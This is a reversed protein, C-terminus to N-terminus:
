RRQGERFKKRIRIAESKRYAAQKEETDRRSAVPSLADSENLGLAKLREILARELEEDTLAKLGARTQRQQQQIWSKEHDLQKNELAMRVAERESKGEARYRAVLRVYQADNKNVDQRQGRPRGRPSKGEPKIKRAKAWSAAMEAPIWCHSVFQDRITFPTAKYIEVIKAMFEPTMRRPPSWPHLWLVRCRGNSNFEGKLLSKRLPRFQKDGGKDLLEALCVWKRKTKKAYREICAVHDAAEAPPMQVTTISPTNKRDAKAMHKEVQSLTLGHSIKTCRAHGNEDYAV